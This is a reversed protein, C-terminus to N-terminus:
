RNGKSCKPSIEENSWAEFAAITLSLKYTRLTSTSILLETM